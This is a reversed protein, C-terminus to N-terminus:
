LVGMQRAEERLQERFQPHALGIMAQVRDRMTLPKLNVCGFETAVYQVDSRPTTVATGPPFASVIRSLRGKKKSTLTSTLAFFSKGNKARQAGRVFDVQGGTGSQQHGGLSDAAVQGFLDIPMATNISIMNDNRAIVAPDNVKTFPMFYFDPNHDMYQYLEKSGFAFSAVSKGPFATKKRNTVVGERMLHMMVDSMLESHIGLDNKSRLGYGVASALGGLGLQITAGDPVQEVIYDSIKRVADDPELETAAPLEDDEEM